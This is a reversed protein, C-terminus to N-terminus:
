AAWFNCMQRFCETQDIKSIIPGDDVRKKYEAKYWWQKPMDYPETFPDSPNYVDHEEILAINYTYEFINSHNEM